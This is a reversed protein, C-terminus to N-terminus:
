SLSCIAEVAEEVESVHFSGAFLSTRWWLQLCLSIAAFGLMSLEERNKLSALLCVADLM